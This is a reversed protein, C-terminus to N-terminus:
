LTQIYIKKKKSHYSSWRFRCTSVCEEGVRREASRIVAAGDVARTREQRSAHAQHGLRRDAGLHRRRFVALVARHRASQVPGARHPASHVRRDAAHLGAPPRLLDDITRRPDDDPSRAPSRFLTTYPFLTYTLTTRPPRRIM